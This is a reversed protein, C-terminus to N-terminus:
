LLHLISMDTSVVPKQERVPAFFGVSLSSPFSIPSKTATGTEWGVIEKGTAPSRPMGDNAIRRRDFCLVEPVM